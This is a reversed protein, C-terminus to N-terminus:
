CRFLTVLGGLCLGPGYPLVAQRSRRAVLVGIAFVGSFVVGLVLANLTCAGAGAGVMAAITVDGRALPEEGRYILRGAAYILLFTLLGGAAGVAGWWWEYGHVLWGLAIGLVAGAVAVMTYVYRHRFDTIAVQLLPVAIAGAAAWRWWPGDIFVVAAAWVAASSAQVLLDRILPGHAASPLGDQTQLLDTVWASAFGLSWGVLAALLVVAFQDTV